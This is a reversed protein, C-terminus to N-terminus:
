GSGLAGTVQEAPVHGAQRRLPGTARWSPERCRSPLFDDLSFRLWCAPPVQPKEGGAETGGGLEERGGAELARDRM